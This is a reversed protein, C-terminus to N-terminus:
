SVPYAGRERFTEFMTLLNEVPIGAQINHVNNFVFGGGKGFVQITHAVQERVQDPTGFPLTHQADIGGGWFVLKDGYNGKLREPEMRAASIQVPNLIDMGADAFDDLLGDLSGCSHFFTKWPTNAHVWDNMRRHLPKYMER